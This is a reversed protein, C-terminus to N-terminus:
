RSRGVKRATAREESEDYASAGRSDSVEVRVRGPDLQAAGFRYSIRGDDDLEVSVRDPEERAITTLLHDAAPLSLDLGRAVDEAFLSSGPGRAAAFAEVARRQTAREVDAGSRQLARGSRLLAWAAVASSLALVAGVVWGAVSEPIVVLLVAAVLSAVIFGGVLLAWGFFRAVTGGVRSPQGALTLSTSSLPM